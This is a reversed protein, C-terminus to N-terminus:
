NCATRASIRRKKLVPTQTPELTINMGVAVSFFCSVITSLTDQQKATTFHLVQLADYEMGKGSDM